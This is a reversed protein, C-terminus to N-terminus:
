LQKVMRVWTYTETWGQEQLMAHLHSRSAPASIQMKEKGADILWAEAEHLM